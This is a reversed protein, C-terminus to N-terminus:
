KGQDILPHAGVDLSQEIAVGFFRLAHLLRMEVFMSRREGAQHFMVLDIRVIEELINVVNREIPHTAVVAKAFRDRAQRAPLEHEGVPIRGIRPSHEFRDADVFMEIVKVVDM